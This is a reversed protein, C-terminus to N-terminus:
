VVILLLDGVFDDMGECPRAKGVSRRFVDDRQWVGRDHRYAGIHQYRPVDVTNVVILDISQQASRESSVPFENRRQILGQTLCMGVRVRGLLQQRQAQGGSRRSLCVGLPVDVDCVGDELVQALCHDACAERCGAFAQFGPPLM